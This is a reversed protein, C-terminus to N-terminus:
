KNSLSEILREHSTRRIALSCKYHLWGRLRTERTPCSPWKSWTWFERQTTSHNIASSCWENLVQLTRKYSCMILGSTPPVNIMYILAPRQPNATANLINQCVTVLWCYNIWAKFDCSSVYLGGSNSILSLLRGRKPLKRLPFLTTGVETSIPGLLLLVGFNEPM